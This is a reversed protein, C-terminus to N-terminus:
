CMWQKTTNTAALEIGQQWQDDGDLGLIFDANADTVLWSHEHTWPPLGALEGELQGPAWTCCGVMMRFSESNHRTLLNSLYGLDNNVFVGDSVEISERNKDTGDHVIYVSGSNVPGGLHSRGPLNMEIGLKQMLETNTYVIPKNLILGWAGADSHQVMYIVSSAFRKDMINPPSILLKGTLNEM